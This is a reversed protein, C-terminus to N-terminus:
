GIRLARRTARGGQKRPKRVHTGEVVNGYRGLDDESEADGSKRGRIAGKPPMRGLVTPGDDFPISILSQKQHLSDRFREARGDPLCQAIRGLRRM